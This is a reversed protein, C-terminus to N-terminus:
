LHGSIVPHAQPANEGWKLPTVHLPNERLGGTLPKFLREWSKMVISSFPGSFFALLIRTNKKLPDQFKM